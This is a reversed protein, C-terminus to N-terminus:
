DPVADSIQRPTLMFVSGMGRIGGLEAAAYLNGAPDFVVPGVTHVGDSGTIEHLVTENWNGEADKALKFVTGCGVYYCVSTDGGFDKAQGSATFATM